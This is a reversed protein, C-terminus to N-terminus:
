KAVLHPEIGVCRFARALSGSPPADLQVSALLRQEMLRQNAIDIVNRLLRVVHHKTRAM